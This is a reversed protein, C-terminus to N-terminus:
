VCLESSINQLVTRARGVVSRARGAVPRSRGAVPRTRPVQPIVILHSNHILRLWLSYVTDQDVLQSLNLLIPILHLTMM